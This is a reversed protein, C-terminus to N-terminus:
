IDDLDISVKECGSSGTSENLTLVKGGNSVYINYICAIEFDAPTDSVTVAKELREQM